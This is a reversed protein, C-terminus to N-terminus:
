SRAGATEVVPDGFFGLLQCLELTELVGPSHAVLILARGQAAAARKTSMLLQVGSTDIEDVGSLDLELRQRTSLLDLLQQHLEAAAYIDMSGRLEVRGPAVDDRTLVEM